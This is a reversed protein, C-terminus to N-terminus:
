KVMNELQNSISKRNTRASFFMITAESEVLYQCKKLKNLFSEVLACESLTKRFEFIKEPLTETPSQKPLL